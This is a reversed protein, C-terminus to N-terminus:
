ADSGHEMIIVDPQYTVKDNRTPSIGWKLENPTLKALAAPIGTAPATSAAAASSTDSTAAAAGPAPRDHKGCAVATLLAATVALWTTKKM